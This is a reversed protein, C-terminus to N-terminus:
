DRRSGSKYCAYGPLCDSDDTSVNGSKAAAEKAIKTANENQAEVEARIQNRGIERQDNRFNFFIYTCAAIMLVLIIHDKVFRLVMGGVLGGIM